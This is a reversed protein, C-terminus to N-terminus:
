GVFDIQLTLAVWALAVWAKYPNAMKFKFRGKNTADYRTHHIYRYKAM